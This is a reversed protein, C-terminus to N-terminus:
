GDTGADRAGESDAASRGSQLARVDAVIIEPTRPHVGNTLRVTLVPQQM